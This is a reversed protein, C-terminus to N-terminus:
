ARHGRGQAARVVSLAIPNPRVPSRLAFTGARHRLAGPGAGRPRAAGPGDLLARDPALLDRGGALAQAWRPDVEITCVAGSERAERANKPCDKRATWPTRIRGIFYLGADTQAPLAVPSRARASIARTPEPRIERDNPEMASREGVRVREAGLNCRARAEGLKVRIFIDKHSPVSGMVSGAWRDNSARLVASLAAPSSVRRRTSTSSASASSVTDSRVWIRRCDCGRM